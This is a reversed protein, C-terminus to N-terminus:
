KCSQEKNALQITVKVARLLGKRQRRKIEQHWKPTGNRGFKEWAYKRRSSVTEYDLWPKSRPNFPTVEIAWLTTM